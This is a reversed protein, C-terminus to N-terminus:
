KIEVNSNGAALKAEMADQAVARVSYLWPPGQITM